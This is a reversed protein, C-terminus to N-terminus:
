LPLCVRDNRDPTDWFCWLLPRLSPCVCVHVRARFIAWFRRDLCGNFEPFQRKQTKKGEIRFFFSLWEVGSVLVFVCACFQLYVHVCHKSVGVKVNVSVFVNKACEYKHTLWSHVLSFANFCLRQQLGTIEESLTM